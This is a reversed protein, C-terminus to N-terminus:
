SLLLLVSVVRSSFSCLPLQCEFRPGGTSCCTSKVSLWGGWAGVNGKLDRCCFIFLCSIMISWFCCSIQDRQASEQKRCGGTSGQVRVEGGTHASHAGIMESSGGFCCRSEYSGPLRGVQTKIRLQGSAEQSDKPEDSVASNPEQQELTERPM